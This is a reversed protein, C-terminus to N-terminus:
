MVGMAEAWFAGAVRCQGFDFRGKGPDLPYNFAVDLSAEVAKVVMNEDVDQAAANFILVKNSKHPFHQLGPVHFLPGIM